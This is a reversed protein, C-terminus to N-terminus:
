CVIYTVIHVAFLFIPLLEIGDLLGSTPSEFKLKDILELEEKTFELSLIGISNKRPVFDMKSKLINNIEIGLPMPLKILDTNDM